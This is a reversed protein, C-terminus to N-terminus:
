VCLWLIVGLDHLFCAVCVYHCLCLLRWCYSILASVCQWGSWGALTAHSCAYLSCRLCVVVHAVVVVWCVFAIHEDCGCVCWARPVVVFVSGFCPLLVGRLCSLVFVVFALPVIFFFM